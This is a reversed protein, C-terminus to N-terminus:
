RPQMSRKKQANYTAGACTPRHAMRKEGWSVGAGVRSGVLLLAPLLAQLAAGRRPPVTRQPALRNRQPAISRESTRRPAARRPAIRRPATRRPAARHPAHAATRQSPARPPARTGHHPRAAGVQALPRTLSSGQRTRRPATRRTRQPPATRRLASRHAATCPPAIRRLATRHPATRHPAAPHAGSRSHAARPQDIICILQHFGPKLSDIFLGMVQVAPVDTAARGGCLHWLVARRLHRM